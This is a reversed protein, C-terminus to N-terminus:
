PEVARQQVKAVKETEQDKVCDFPSRPRPILGDCPRQRCVSCCLCFLRVCIDMGRTPNSGVFVTYAKTRAAV